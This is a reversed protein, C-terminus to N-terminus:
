LEAREREYAQKIAARQEMLSMLQTDYQERDIRESLLADTLRDEKATLSAMSSQYRRSLDARAQAKQIDLMEDILM